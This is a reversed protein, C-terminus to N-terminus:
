SKHQNRVSQRVTKEAEIFQNLMHLQRHMLKAYVMAAAPSANPLNLISHGPRNLGFRLNNRFAQLLTQELPSDPLSPANLSEMEEIWSSDMSGVDVLLDLPDFPDIVIAASQANSSSSSSVQGSAIKSWAIQWATEIFIGLM